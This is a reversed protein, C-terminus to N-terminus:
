NPTGNRVQSSQIAAKEVKCEDKQRGLYSTHMKGEFKREGQANRM